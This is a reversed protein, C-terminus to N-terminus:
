VRFTYKNTVILLTRLQISSIKSLEFPPPSSFGSTPRISDLVDYQAVSSLGYGGTSLRVSEKEAEVLHRIPTECQQIPSLHDISPVHNDSSM